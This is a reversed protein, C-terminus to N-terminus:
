IKRLKGSRVNTVIKKLHGEQNKEWIGQLQNKTAM